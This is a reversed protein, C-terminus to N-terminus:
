PFPQLESSTPVCGVKALHRGHPGSCSAGRRGNPVWRSTERSTISSSLHHNHLELRPEAATVERRETNLVLNEWTGWGGPYALAQRQSETVSAVCRLEDEGRQSNMGQNRAARLRTCRQKPTLVYLVAALFPFYLVGRPENAAPLEPISESWM